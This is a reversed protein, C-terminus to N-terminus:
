DREDLTYRNLEQTSIFDWLRFTGDLSASYLKDDATFGITTVAGGHGVFHRPEAITPALTQTTRLSYATLLHTETGILLWTSDPSFALASVPDALPYVQREGETSNLDIIHAESGTASSLVLAVQDGQPDFRVFLDSSAAEVSSNIAITRNVQTLNRTDYLDIHDAYAIALQNQTGLAIKAIRPVPTAIAHRSMLALPSQSSDWIQLENNYTLLYFRNGDATLAADFVENYDALRVEMNLDYLHALANNALAMVLRGDASIQLDDVEIPSRLLSANASTGYFNSLQTVTLDSGDAMVLTDANAALAAALIPHDTTVNQAVFDAELAVQTPTPEGVPSSQTLFFAGIGGMLLMGVVIGLGLIQMTQQQDGKTKQKVKSM